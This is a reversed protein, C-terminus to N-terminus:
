PFEEPTKWYAAEVGDLRSLDFMAREATSRDPVEINFYCDLQSKSLGDTVAKVTLSHQSFVELLRRVRESEDPPGELSRRLSGAASEEVLLVITM